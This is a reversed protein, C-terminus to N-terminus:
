ERSTTALLRVITRETMYGSVPIQRARQYKRIARRTNEDFTGDVPGPNLGQGKLKQEVMLRVIRTGAVRKEEDRARRLAENERDATTLEDLSRKARRAYAGQPYRNLYQRYAAATGNAQVQEWYNREEAAARAMRDAEIRELKDRAIGSYLGDPYSDLYAQLGAETGNRGTRRWYTADQRDQQAQRQRAEEELERVRANAASQLASIQNGTLYGYGDIGRSQQWAAIATRSGRGFLGDIGRPNFGLVSLNRQIKRRQARSLNLRDEAAKAQLEPRARLDNIEQQVARRYRGNPYRNLYSQLAQITGVERVAELYLFEADQPQDRDTAPVRSGEVTLGRPAQRVAASMSRGPRLLDRVVFQLLGAVPGKVVTVGRPIDLDGVGANLGFGVVPVQGKALLVVAEDANQGAAQLLAGISLGTRGATFMNPEQANTALLWSDRENSVMHGGLLIIVRDSNAIASHFRIALSFQERNNLDQGHFVDFGASELMRVINPILAINRGTSAQNQYNRNGIVLAVDKALVPMALAALVSALAVQKLKLKM